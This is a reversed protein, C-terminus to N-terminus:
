TQWFTLIMWQCLTLASLARRRREVPDDTHHFDIRLQTAFEHLLEHHTECLPVLFWPVHRRGGGHHIHVKKSTGCIVCRRKSRSTRSTM